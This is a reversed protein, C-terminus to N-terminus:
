RMFAPVQWTEAAREYVRLHKAAVRNGLLEFDAGSERAIDAIVDVRTNTNGTLAARAADRSCCILSAARSNISRSLPSGSLKGAGRRTLVYPISRTLTLLLGSRASRDNHVHVVDVAPMLCYAIVPSGTVPGLTVNKYIAVRRALAHNRVIVHQNVGQRDLAEVLAVFHEGTGNFSRALNVHGIVM